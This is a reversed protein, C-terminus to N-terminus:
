RLGQLEFFKEIGQGFVERRRGLEDFMALADDQVCDAEVEPAFLPAEELLVRCDEGVWQGAIYNETGLVGRSEVKIEEEPCCLVLTKIERLLGM